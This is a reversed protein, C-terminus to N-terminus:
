YILVRPLLEIKQFTFPLAGVAIDSLREIKKHLGNRLQVCM